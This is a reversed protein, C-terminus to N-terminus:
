REWGGFTLCWESLEDADHAVMSGPQYEGLPKKIALAEPLAEDAHLAIPILNELESRWLRCIDQQLEFSPSFRNILFFGNRRPANQKALLYCAPDPNLLSISFDALSNAWQKLWSPTSSADIVVWDYHSENLFYLAKQKNNDDGSNQVTLRKKLEAEQGENLLGFPLYDIKLAYNIPTVSMTRILTLAWGDKDEWSHNFYLRLLNSVSFDLALVSKGRQALAWALSACVSTAGCGGRVGDIVSIRTM